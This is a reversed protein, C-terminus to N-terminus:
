NALLGHQRLVADIRSSDAGHIVDGGVVLLPTGRGGRADFDRKGEASSAIDIENWTVGRQQLLHRVKECYGCHPMVYLTVKDADAAAASRVPTAPEAQSPSIAISFLIVATIAMRMVGEEGPASLRRKASLQSQPM